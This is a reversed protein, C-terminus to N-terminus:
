RFTVNDIHGYVISVDDFPPLPVIEISHIRAKRSRFGIFQASEAINSWTRQPLYPDRALQGILQGKPDRATISLGPVRAITNGIRTFGFEQCPRDFTLRIGNPSQICLTSEGFPANPRAAFGSAIIIGDNFPGYNHPRPPGEIESIAIGHTRFMSQIPGQWHPFTDITTLGRATRYETIPRVTACGTLLSVACLISVILQRKM